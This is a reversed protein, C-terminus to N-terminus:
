AWSCSWLKKLFKQFITHDEMGYKSYLKYIMKMGKQKPIKLGADIMADIAASCCRDKFKLFDILTNDLDFIVAKIM